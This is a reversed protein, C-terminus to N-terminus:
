GSGCCAPTLVHAGDIMFALADGSALAIGRNLARTPSPDAEAGLDVYRFEAGFSRVLEDGLKQDDDSGNEVVIVEYDLDDIGQQYARSLSHLTRGAERRMNYFVVVVSLDKHTTRPARPFPARQSRTPSPRGTAARRDRGDEALVVGRRRDARDARRGRRRRFAEVAQQVGPTAFQDVVVFGGVTVRDYLAELM